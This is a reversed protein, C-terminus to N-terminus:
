EDDDESDLESLDITSTTDGIARLVTATKNRWTVLGQESVRSGTITIAWTGPELDGEEILATVMAVMQDVATDANPAMVIAYGDGCLNETYDDGGLEIEARYVNLLKKGTLAAAVDMVHASAPDKTKSM